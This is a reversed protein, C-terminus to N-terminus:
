VETVEKLQERYLRCYIGDKEILEQHKGEEAIIGGSICLIRDVTKLASLRHGVIICSKDATLAELAENVYGESEADLASTPEDLLIIEAGKLMARAISIRQKEGGSLRSGDEGLDAYIDFNALNVKKLTNIVDEKNANPCCIHINDYISGPFLFFDQGVYAMHKRLEKTNWDEVKNGFLYIEGSIKDYFKMLLKLATSKGEGSAGVLAIKEGKNLQFSMDKVVLDKGQYGFVVNQFRVPVDNKEEKVNGGEEELDMEWIDFLRSAIGITNYIDRIQWSLSGITDLLQNSIFAFAVFNGLTMSGHIIFYVGSAMMIFSPLLSLLIQLPFMIFEIAFSKVGCETAIDIQEEYKKYMAEELGFAKSITLGNMLDVFMASSQGHVQTRKQIWKAIPRGSWAQMAGVLPIVMFSLLSLRWDLIFCTTLAIILKIVNSMEWTMFKNLAAVMEELDRNVRSLIDGIKSADLWEMKARSVYSYTYDRIRKICTECLSGVYHNVMYHVPFSLLQLGLLLLIGKIIENSISVHDIIRGLVLNNLVTLINGTTILFLALLFTKKSAQNIELFKLIIKKIGKM